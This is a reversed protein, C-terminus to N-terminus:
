LSLGGIIYICYDKEFGNVNQPRCVFVMRKDTLCMAVDGIVFM